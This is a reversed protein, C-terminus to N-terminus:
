RTCRSPTRVVALANVVPREGAPDSPRSEVSGRVVMVSSSGGDLNLAETAGLARMLDALEPLSMGVSYTSQRGDVVALWLRGARPDYGVATRPHRTGGFSGRENEDFDDTPRANRLLEPFGSVAETVSDSGDLVVDWGLRLTDGSIETRGIWPASGPRWALTPRERAATVKGDVVEAGLTAGEPTFFDANVAALVSGSRARREVMGTVTELGLEGQARAEPRLVALGVDCRRVNAEVLHIAWPGASSWLYRYWVGDSLRETRVTDPGLLELADAPVRDALAPPKDAPACATLGAVVALGWLAAARHVAGSRAGISRSRHASYGICGVGVGEPCPRRGGPGPMEKMPGDEGCEAYQQQETRSRRPVEGGLLDARAVAHAEADRGAPDARHAERDLEEVTM